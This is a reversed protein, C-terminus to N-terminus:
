NSNSILLIHSNLTPVVINNELIAWDKNYKYAQKVLIAAFSISKFLEEFLTIRLYERLVFFPTGEEWMWLPTQKNFEHHPGDHIYSSPAGNWWVELSGFFKGEM